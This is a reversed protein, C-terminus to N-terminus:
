ITFLNGNFQIGKAIEGDKVASANSYYVGDRLLVGTNDISQTSHIHSFCHLKLNKLKKIRNSLAKDGVQTLTNDGYQRTLDLIGKAPGHTLLIDVDNDILNDWRKRMKDREVMFSWRGFTPTYPSAFIKIGDVVTHEDILLEIGVDQAMQTARKPETYEFTSHNGPTFIKLPIHGLNTYVWHLFEEYEKENIHPISNNTYDGSHLVIDINNPIELQDHKMHTCGIHWIKLGNDGIIIM